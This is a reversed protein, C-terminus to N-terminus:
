SRGNMCHRFMHQSLQQVQIMPTFIRDWKEELRLERCVKSEWIIGYPPIDELKQKPKTKVLRM